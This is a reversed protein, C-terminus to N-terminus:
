ANLGIKNSLGLWNKVYAQPLDYPSEKLLQEITMQSQVRKHKTKKKKANLATNEGSVAKSNVNSVFIVGQDHKKTKFIIPARPNIDLASKFAQKLDGERM